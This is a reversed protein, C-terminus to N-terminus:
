IFVFYLEPQTHAHYTAETMDSEKRGQPSYGVLSRQGQSIPTPQWVRMWPIKEDWSDFGLRKNYMEQITPPHKVM